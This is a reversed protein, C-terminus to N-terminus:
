HLAGATAAHLGVVHAPPSLAQIVTHSDIQPPLPLQLLIGHVPPDDNPARIRALLAAHTTDAPMRDLTSRIGSEECDKVKNRVYVSSAPDEGVLIVALGPPHGRAALAAARHTMDARISQALAAGDLIRATM